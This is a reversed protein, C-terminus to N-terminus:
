SGANEPGSLGDFAVDGRVDGKEVRVRPVYNPNPHGIEYEVGPGQSSVQVVQHCDRSLGRRRTHPTVDGEDNRVARVGVVRSM